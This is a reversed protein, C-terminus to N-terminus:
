TSYNKLTLEPYFDSNRFTLFSMGVLFLIPGLFFVLFYVLAPAVQLVSVYRRGAAAPAALVRPLPQDASILEPAGAHLCSTILGHDEGLRGAM